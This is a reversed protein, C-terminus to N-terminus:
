RPSQNQPSAPAWTPPGSPATAPTASPQPHSLDKFLQAWIVASLICLCLGVISMLHYRPVPPIVVPLTSSAPASSPTLATEFPTFYPYFVWGIFLWGVFLAVGVLLGAVGHTGTLYAGLMVIPMGIAAGVM